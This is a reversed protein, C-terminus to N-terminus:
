PAPHRATMAAAAVAGHFEGYLTVAVNGMRRDVPIRMDLFRERRYDLVVGSARRDARPKARTAGVRAAGRLGLIAFTPGYLVVVAAIALLALLVYLIPRWSGVAWVWDDATLMAGVCFLGVIVVLVPALGSSYYAIRAARRRALATVPEGQSLAYIGAFMMRYYWASLQLCLYLAPLLPIVLLLRDTFACLPLWVLPDADAVIAILTNHSPELWAQLRSGALLFCLASFATALIAALAMSEQHFRKAPALPVRRRAEGALRRPNFLLLAITQLYARIGGRAQRFIWPIRSVAAAAIPTGCEPCRGSANGRLDYECIPCHGADPIPTAKSTM